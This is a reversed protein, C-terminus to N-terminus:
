ADRRRALVTGVALVAMTWAAFYLGGLVRGLAQDGSDIVTLGFGAQFPLWDIVGDAGAALFIAGIINEIILPWLVLIAVAGPTARVILGIGLGLISLMAAFVVVGILAPVVESLQEALDISAGRAEFIVAGAAFAVVVVLLQVVVATAATVIAKALVVQGRQPVAAFTVRITGFGYETTVGAAGIVGLLLGTVVSTGAVLSAIDRTTWSDPEAFVSTLVVVVLPFALGVISLVLNLRVTRLKIWESRVADIVM